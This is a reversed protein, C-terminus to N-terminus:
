GVQDRMLRRPWNGRAAAQHSNWPYVADHGIRWVREGRLHREWGPAEVAARPPAVAQVPASTNCTTWKSRKECKWVSERVVCVCSGVVVHLRNVLGGRTSVATAIVAIRALTFYACQPLPGQLM